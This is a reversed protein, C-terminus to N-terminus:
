VKLGIKDQLKQRDQQRKQHEFHIIQFFLM